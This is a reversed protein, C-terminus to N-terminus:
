ESKFDFSVRSGGDDSHINLHGHLRDRVTAEVINLGLCGEDPLVEGFGCGDDCVTVTHFLRGPCFSVGINGSERDEFAHELANTILENVVLAVSSAADASLKASTGTVSITIHKGEPVFPLLNKRLQELLTMSDVGGLGSRSKTLIDHIAAISLVRGVNERLIKQTFPDGCRRSQLNLISAVLQLNNKIRHHVERLTLADAAPQESRLSLDGEEYTRVLSQFKKEQRLDGSIDKERILVAICRGDENLVPVADQRVTREEQTIAKLDRVPARLEMAHFVAPEKDPLAYAGVVDKEYASGVTHPRAQAAVVARGDRTICDIFVDAGTLEAMLPLQCSVAELRRIDEPRLDTKEECIKRLM